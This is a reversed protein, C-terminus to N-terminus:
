SGGLPVQRAHHEFDALAAELAEESMVRALGSARGTEDTAHFWATRVRDVFDEVSVAGRLFGALGAPSAHFRAPVPVLAYRPHAGVLAGVAPAGSGGAGGVFVPDPYAV